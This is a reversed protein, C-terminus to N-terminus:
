ISLFKNWMAANHCFNRCIDTLKQLLHELFYPVDIGFIINGLLRKAASLNIDESVNV